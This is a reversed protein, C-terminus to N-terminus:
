YRMGLILLFESKLIRDYNLPWVKIVNSRTGFDNRGMIKYLLDRLGTKDAKM